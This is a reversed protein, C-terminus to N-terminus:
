ETVENGGSIPRLTWRDIAQLAWFMPYAALTTLAVEAFRTWLQLPMPHEEVGFSISLFALNFLVSFAFASIVFNKASSWFLRAKAYATISVIVLLVLWFIGIPVASFSKLITGAFVDVIIMATLYQRYLSLHLLVLLWLQPAPAGATLQYWFSTQLGCCALLFGALALINLAKLRNPVV